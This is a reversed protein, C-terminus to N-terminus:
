WNSSNKMKKQQGGGKKSIPNIMYPALTNINKTKNSPMKFIRKHILIKVKMKM